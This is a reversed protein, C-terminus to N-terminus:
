KEKMRGMETRIDTEENLPCGHHAKVKILFTAVKAKVRKQIEIVIVRLVDEDATKELSLKGGGDIL